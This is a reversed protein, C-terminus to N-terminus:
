NNDEGKQIYFSNNNWDQGSYIITHNKGDNGNWNPKVWLSLTGQNINLNDYSITGSNTHLNLTASTEIPIKIIMDGEDNFCRCYGNTPLALEVELDGKSLSVQLRRVGKSMVAFRGRKEELKEKLREVVRLPEAEYM